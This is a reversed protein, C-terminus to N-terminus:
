VYQASISFQFFNLNWYTTLLELAWCFDWRTRSAIVQLRAVVARVRARRLEAAGGRVDRPQQDADRRPARRLPSYYYHSMQGSHLTGEVM